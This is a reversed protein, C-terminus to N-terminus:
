SIVGNSYIKEDKLIEDAQIDDMFFTTIVALIMLLDLVGCLIYISEKTYKVSVSTSFKNPCNNGGCSDAYNITRNFNIIFDPDLKQLILSIQVSGLCYGKFFIFCTLM